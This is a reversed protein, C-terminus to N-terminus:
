FVIGDASGVEGSSRSFSGKLWFIGVVSGVIFAALGAMVLVYANESYLSSASDKLHPDNINQMQQEQQEQQRAVDLADSLM